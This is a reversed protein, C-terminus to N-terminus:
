ILTASCLPEANADTVSATTQIKIRHQPILTFKNLENENM